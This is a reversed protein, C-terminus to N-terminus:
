GEWNGLSSRALQWTLVRYPAGDDAGLMVTAELTLIAKGTSNLLDIRVITASSSDRTLFQNNQTLGTSTRRVENDNIVGDDSASNSGLLDDSKEKRREVVRLAEAQTVGPIALLVRRPATRPNIRGDSNFVTVFPVLRQYLATSVGLVDRLQSVHVFDTDGAGHHRGAREYNFDEAGRFRRRTDNDRWDLIRDRIMTADSSSGAVEQILGLLLVEDSQNLDVLGSANQVRARLRHSGVQFTQPTGDRPWERADTDALLQAAVIELGGELVARREASIRESTIVTASGRVTANFASVLLAMSAVVWLVVVLVVGREGNNNTM